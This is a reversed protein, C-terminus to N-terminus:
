IYITSVKDLHNIEELTLKCKLSNVNDRAQQSSTAGPIIFINKNNFNLLWNLAVQSSSVNYKNAINQLAFIIPQAELMNKKSFKSKYKRWGVRGDILGPSNHFKGSVIGQALPSYAIISVGLKNATDLIGNAEIKRNLISYEVQNSTLKINRKDLAECARLMQSNNFNSVGIHKILGDDVLNAMENMEKEISSFGYPMHVQHLSIPYDGLLKIRKSITKRISKSFRFLPWWKTAIYISKNNIKLDSLSESLSKESKGWGYLEATDFWNINGDISSKIIDLTLENSLKPWFKGAFGVNKSLQWCGLGILSFKLDTKGLKGLMM